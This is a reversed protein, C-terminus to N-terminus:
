LNFVSNTYYQVKGDEVTRQESRRQIESDEPQIIVARRLFGSFNKMKRKRASPYVNTQDLIFNRNRKQALIFLFIIGNESKDDDILNIEVLTM